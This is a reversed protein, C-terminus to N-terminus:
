KNKGSVVVLYEAAIRERPNKMMEEFPITLRPDTPETLTEELTRTRNYVWIVDGESIEKWSITVPGSSTIKAFVTKEDTLIELKKQLTNGKADTTTATATREALVVGDYAGVVTAEVYSQGSPIAVPEHRAAGFWGSQRGFFFAGALIVVAALFIIQTKSVSCGKQPEIITEMRVLLTGTVRPPRAPRLPLTNIVRWLLLGRRSHAPPKM